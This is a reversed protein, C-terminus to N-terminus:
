AATPIPGRPCRKWTTRTEGEHIIAPTARVPCSAVTISWGFLLGAHGSRDGEAGGKEAAGQQEEAERGRGVREVWVRGDPNVIVEITDRAELVSSLAPGLATALMALGRSPDFTPSSTM